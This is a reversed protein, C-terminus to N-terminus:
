AREPLAAGPVALDDPAAAPRPARAMDRLRQAEIKEVESGPLLYETDDSSSRVIVTAVILALSGAAAWWIHWVMAFGLMFSLAGIVVGFASSKPMAIDEYRAPRQYAIGAAKLDLFADRGHVQPIVAFNYPAPPSSTLWELTRGNWPDGTWDRNEARRRISVFLQVGMFILGFLVFVAGAAAVILYPQWEPTDYHEMRRPMGMFGLLYLPM